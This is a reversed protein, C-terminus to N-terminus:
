GSIKRSKRYRQRMPVGMGVGVGVRLGSEGREGPLDLAYTHFIQPARINDRNPGREELVSKAVM